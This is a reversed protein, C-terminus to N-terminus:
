LERKKNEGQSLTENCLGPQNPLSQTSLALRSSVSGKAGASELLLGAMGLRVASDNCGEWEIERV